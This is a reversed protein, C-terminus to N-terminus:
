NKFRDRWRRPHDPADQEGNGLGGDRIRRRRNPSSDSDRPLQNLNDRGSEETTNDQTDTSENMSSSKGFSHLPRIRM